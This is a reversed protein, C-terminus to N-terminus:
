FTVTLSYEAMNHSKIIVIGMGIKTTSDDHRLWQSFERPENTSHLCGESWALVQVVLGDEVGIM